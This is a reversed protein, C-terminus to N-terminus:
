PQALSREKHYLKKNQIKVNKSAEIPKELITCLKEKNCTKKSKTLIVM